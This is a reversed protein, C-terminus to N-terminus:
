RVSVWQWGALPATFVFLAATGKREYEYDRM